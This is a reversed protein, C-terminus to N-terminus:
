GGYPLPPLAMSHQGARQKEYERRRPATRDKSRRMARVAACRSLSAACPMTWKGRKDPRGEVRSALQGLAKAEFYAFVVTQAGEVVDGPMVALLVPGTPRTTPIAERNEWMNRVPVRRETKEGNIRRYLTCADDVYYPEPLASRKAADSM